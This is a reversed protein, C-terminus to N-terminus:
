RSRPCSICQPPIIRIAKGCVKCRLPSAAEGVRSILAVLKPDLRRYEIFRGAAKANEVGALMGSSMGFDQYVITADAKQNWAFGAAMGKQREAPITDDLVGEQTYLGHSAYPAEGKSLSDAMCARLYALNRPVAGAYPSEIIVLRM